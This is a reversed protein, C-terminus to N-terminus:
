WGGEQGARRDRVWGSAQRKGPGMEGGRSM